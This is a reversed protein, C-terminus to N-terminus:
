LGTKELPGVRQSIYPFIRQYRDGSCKFYYGSDEAMRISFGVLQAETQRESAPLSLWVDLIARLAEEQKM